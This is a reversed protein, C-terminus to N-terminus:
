TKSLQEGAPHLLNWATADLQLLTRQLVQTSAPAPSAYFQAMMERGRRLERLAPWWRHDASLLDILEMARELANRYERPTTKLHEARNLENAVMLLQQHKSFGYFRPTMGVHWRTM